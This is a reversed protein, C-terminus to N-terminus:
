SRAGNVYKGFFKTYILMLISFIFLYPAYKNFKRYDFIATLFMFVLGLAVWIIQKIYEKSVLIGDSNIGSSYIFSVSLGLLIVVCFFLIYDFKEFLKTKM